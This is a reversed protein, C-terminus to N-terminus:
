VEGQVYRAEKPQRSSLVACRVCYATGGRKERKISRELAKADMDQEFTWLRELRFRIGKRSMAAPFRGGNGTRHQRLRKDIDTTWGIYHRPARRYTLTSSDLPQEYHLIYVYAM